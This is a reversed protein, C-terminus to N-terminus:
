SFNASTFAGNFGEVLVANDAGGGITIVLSSSGTGIATVTFENAASNWNGSFFSGDTAIGIDGLLGAAGANTIVQNIGTTAVGLTTDIKDNASFDTINTVATGGAGALQFVDGATM